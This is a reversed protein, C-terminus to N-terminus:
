EKIVGVVEEERYLDYKEGEFQVTQGKYDPLLVKDGEKLFPKRDTFHPTNLLIFIQINGETGAGVSIVIGQANDKQGASEPLLIGGVSTEKAKAVRKIIVRDLLPILKKAKSAM